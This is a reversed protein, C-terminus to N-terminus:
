GEVWGIQANFNGAGGGVAICQFGYGNSATLPSVIEGRQDYAQYQCRNRPNFYEDMIFGATYTPEATLNGLVTAEAAPNSGPSKIGATLSTGTGAATLRRLQANVNQDSTPTGSTSLVYQQACMVVATGGMLTLASQTAAIARSGSITYM